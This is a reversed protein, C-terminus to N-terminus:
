TSEKSVPISKVRCVHEKWLLIKADEEENDEDDDALQIDGVLERSSGEAISTLSRRMESLNVVSQEGGPVCMVDVLKESEDDEMAEMITKADPAPFGEM